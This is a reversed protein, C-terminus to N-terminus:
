SEDYHVFNIITENLPKNGRTACQWDAIGCQGASNDTRHDVSFYQRVARETSQRRTRATANLQQDPVVAVLIAVDDVLVTPRVGDSGFLRLRRQGRSGIGSPACAWRAASGRAPWVSSYSLTHESKTYRIGVRCM